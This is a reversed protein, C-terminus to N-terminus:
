AVQVAERRVVGREVAREVKRRWWCGYGLIPQCSLLDLGYCFLADESPVELLDVLYLQQFLCLGRDLAADKALHREEQDLHGLAVVLFHLLVRPLEHISVLGLNDRRRLAVVQHVQAVSLPAGLQAIQPCTGPLLHQGFAGLALLLALLDFPASFDLAHLAQDLLNILRLSDDM